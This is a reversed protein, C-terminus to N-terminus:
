LFCEVPTEEQPEMDGRSRTKCIFNEHMMVDMDLVLVGSWAM